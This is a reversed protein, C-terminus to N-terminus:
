LGSELFTTSYDGATFRPDALLRAHLPLSTRIGEVIFEAVARRMRALAEARDAGHAIVKAVLSDYYRPFRTDRSATATWACAPVAPRSTPRSAARARRSTVPDEATVRCEIAHGQFRM